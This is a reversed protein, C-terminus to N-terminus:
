HKHSNLHFFSRFNTSVLLPLHPPYFFHIIVFLVIYRNKLMSRELTCLRHYHANFLIVHVQFVWGLIITLFHFSMIFNTQIFHFSSRYNHTRNCDGRKYNLLSNSWQNIKKIYENNGGRRQACSKMTLWLYFVLGLLINFLQRM